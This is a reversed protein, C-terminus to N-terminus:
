EDYYCSFNWQDTGLLVASSEFLPSAVDAYPFWTDRVHASHLETGNKESLSSQNGSM